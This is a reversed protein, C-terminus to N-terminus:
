RVNRVDLRSEVRWELQEMRLQMTRFRDELSLVRDELQGVDSRVELKDLPRDLRSFGVNMAALLEAFKGDLYQKTEADM